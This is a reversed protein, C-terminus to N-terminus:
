EDDEENTLGGAFANARNNLLEFVDTVTDEANTAGVDPVRVNPTINVQITGRLKKVLLDLQQPQSELGYLHALSQRGFLEVVDYLWAAVGDNDNPYPLGEDTTCLPMILSIWGWIAPRMRLNAFPVGVLVNGTETKNPNGNKDTTGKKAKKPDEASVYGMESAKKISAGAILIEDTPDRGAYLGEVRHGKNGVQHGKIGHWGGRDGTEEFTEGCSCRWEKM